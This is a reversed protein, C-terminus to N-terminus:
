NKKDSTFWRLVLLQTDELAESDHETDDFANYDGPKSLLVEKGSEPFRIKWKGSVLVIVSQSDLSSNKPTSKSFGKPYHAWKAEYKKHHLISDEPMFEGLFWGKREPHEQNLKDLNGTEIM